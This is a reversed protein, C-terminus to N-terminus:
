VPGSVISLPWGPPSSFTGHFSFPFSNGFLHLTKGAPLCPATAKARRATSGGIHAAKRRPGRSVAVAASM